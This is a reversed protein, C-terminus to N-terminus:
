KDDSLAVVNMSGDVIKIVAKPINVHWRGKKDNICIEIKHTGDGNRAVNFSTVEELLWTLFNEPEM